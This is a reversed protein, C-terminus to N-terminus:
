VDSWSGVTTGFRCSIRSTRHTRRATGYFRPFAAAGKFYKIERAAYRLRAHRLVDGRQAGYLLDKKQFGELSSAASLSGVRGPRPEASGSTKTKTESARGIETPESLKELRLKKDLRCGAPPPLQISIPYFFSM